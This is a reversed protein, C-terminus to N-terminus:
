LILYTKHRNGLRAPVDQPLYFKMFNGKSDFECVGNIIWYGGSVDTGSKAVEALLYKLVLENNPLHVGTQNVWQNAETRSLVRCEKSAASYGGVFGNGVVYVKYISGKHNIMQGIHYKETEDALEKAKQIGANYAKKSYSTALTIYGSGLGYKDNQNIYYDYFRKACIYLAYKNGDRALPYWPNYKDSLPSGPSEKLDSVIVDLLFDSVNNNQSIYQTMSSYGSKELVYNLYAKPKLGLEELVNKIKTKELISWGLDEDTTFNWEPARSGVISYYAYLVWTKSNDRTSPYRKVYDKILQSIATRLTNSQTERWVRMMYEAVDDNGQSAALKAYKIGQAESKTVGKGEFFLQAAYLQAKANGRDALPRLQKAAETYRGQQLLSEVISLSQAYISTTCALLLLLFLKKM